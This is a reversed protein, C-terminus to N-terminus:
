KGNTDEQILGCGSCISFKGWDFEKVFNHPFCIEPKRKGHEMISKQGEKYSKRKESEVLSTLFKAYEDIYCQTIKQRKLFVEKDNIRLRMEDGYNRFPYESLIEVVIERIREEISIPTSNSV